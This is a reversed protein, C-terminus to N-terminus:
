KGSGPRTGGAFRVTREVGFEKFNKFMGQTAAVGQFQKWKDKGEDSKRVGKCPAPCTSFVWGCPLGESATREMTPAIALGPLDVSDRICM